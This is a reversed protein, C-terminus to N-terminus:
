SQQSRSDEEEERRGLVARSAARWREGRASECSSLDNPRSSLLGCRQALRLAAMRFSCADAGVPTCYLSSKRARCPCPQCLKPALLYPASTLPVACTTPILSVRTLLPLGVPGEDRAVPLEGPSRVRLEGGKAHCLGARDVSGPSALSREACGDVGGLHPPEDRRERARPLRHQLAPPLQQLPRRLYPFVPPLDIPAM